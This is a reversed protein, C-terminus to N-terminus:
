ISLYKRLEILGRKIRVSIVNPTQNLIAAIDKPRLGDIYRLRLVEAYQENVQELAGLMMKVDIALNQQERNDIKVDFGNEMIIELSVEKRKRIHDTALNRALTYLFAQMNDIPKGELLYKWTKTFTDQVLDTALERDHVRFFLFRFIADNYADYASLFKGEITKSTQFM